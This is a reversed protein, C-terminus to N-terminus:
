SCTLVYTSTVASSVSILGQRIVNPDIWTMTCTSLTLLVSMCPLFSTERIFRTSTCNASELINLISLTSIFVKDLECYASYTGADNTIRINTNCLALTSNQLTNLPTRWRLMNGIICSASAVATKGKCISMDDVSLVPPIPKPNIILLAAKSRVHQSAFVDVSSVTVTYNGSCSTLVKNLILTSSTTGLNTDDKKWQYFTIRTTTLM